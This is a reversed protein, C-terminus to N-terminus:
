WGGELVSSQILKNPLSFELVVKGNEPVDGVLCTQISKSEPNLMILSFTFFVEHFPFEGRASSLGLLPTALAKAVYTRM